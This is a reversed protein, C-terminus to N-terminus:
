WLTREAPLMSVQSAAGGEESGGRRGEERGGKGGEKGRGQGRGEKVAERVRESERASRAQKDDTNPLCSDDTEHAAPLGGKEEDVSM